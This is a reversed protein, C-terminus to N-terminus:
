LLDYDQQILISIPLVTWKLYSSGIGRKVTIELIYSGPADTDTPKWDIKLMGQVSSFVSIDPNTRIVRINSNNYHSTKNSGRQVKLYSLGLSPDHSVEQILMKENDISIISTDNLRLDFSSPIKNITSNVQGILTTKYGMSCFFEFEQNSVPQFSIPIEKEELSNDLILLKIILKPEVDKYKLVFGDGGGDASSSINIDTFFELITNLLYSKYIRAIM